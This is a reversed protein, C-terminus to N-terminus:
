STSRLRRRVLLPAPRTIAFAFILLWLACMVSMTAIGPKLFVGPLAATSAILATSTSSPLRKRFKEFAHTASLSIGYSAGAAFAFYCFVLADDPLLARFALYSAAVGVSAAFGAALVNLSQNSGYEDVICTALCITFFFPTLALIKLITSGFGFYPSLLIFIAFLSVCAFLQWSKIKM